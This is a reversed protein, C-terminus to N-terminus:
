LADIASQADRGFEELEAETPERGEAEAKAKLANYKQIAVAAEAAGKLMFRLLYAWELTTM